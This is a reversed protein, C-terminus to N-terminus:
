KKEFIVSQEQQEKLGSAGEYLILPNKNSFLGFEHMVLQVALLLILHIIALKLMIREISAMFFVGSKRKLM